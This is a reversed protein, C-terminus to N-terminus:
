CSVFNLNQDSLKIKRYTLIWARLRLRFRKFYYELCLPESNITPNASGVGLCLGKQGISMVLYAALTARVVYKIQGNM